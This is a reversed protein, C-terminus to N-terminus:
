DTDTLFQEYANAPQGAEVPVDVLAESDEVCNWYAAYADQDAPPGLAAVQTPPSLPQQM